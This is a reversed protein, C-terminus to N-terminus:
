LIKTELIIQVAQRFDRVRFSPQRKLEEHYNRDIFITQCNAAHGCDIDRWRDGIMFSATLDINLKEAAAQLMGPKPKRCHCHEDWPHKEGAHYCVEIHTIQPVAKLLLAHMEEVVEQTQTKRGVDPQNTAVILTFGAASLDACGQAVDEYLKFEKVTAPPFSKGDRIIPVNLVGDRDLFVAARLHSLM